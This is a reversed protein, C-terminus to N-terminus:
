TLEKDFAILDVGAVPNWDRAPARRYGLRAYLRHAASMDPLSCIVMGTSAQARAREECKLVLAAGVGRGRARAHVALMRFEGEHGEALERMPSGPPCYTVCGVPTDDLVAVWLEGTAARGGADRLREIYPDDPGTTFPEYARATLEGLEEFEGARALRVGLTPDPLGLGSM